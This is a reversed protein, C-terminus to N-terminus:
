MNSGFIAGLCSLVASVVIQVIQLWNKKTEM